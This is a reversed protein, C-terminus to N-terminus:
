TGKDKRYQNKEQKSGLSQSKESLDFIQLNLEKSLRQALRIIYIGENKSLCLCPNEFNRLVLSSLNVDLELLKKPDVLAVDQFSLFTKKILTLEDQSEFSFIESNKRKEPVGLSMLVIKKGDLKKNCFTVSSSSKANKLYVYTKFGESLPPFNLSRLVIEDQFFDRKKLFLCIELLERKILIGDQELLKALLAAKNKEELFVLLKFFDFSKQSKITEEIKPCKGTLYITELEKKIAQVSFKSDLFIKARVSGNYSDRCCFIRAKVFSSGEISSFEKTKLLVSPLKVRQSFAFDIEQKALLLQKWDKDFYSLRVFYKAQDNKKSFFDDKILLLYFSHYSDKTLSFFNEKILEEIM